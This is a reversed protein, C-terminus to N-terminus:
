ATALAGAVRDLDAPTCDLHPSLRLLPARLEGPARWPLSATTLVQHEELLRARVAAVDQGPTPRLATVAGRHRRGVIQWAGTTALAERTTRGLADLAGAVAEPGTEVLRRVAHALGVRGAVHAEDSDLLRAPPLDPSSKAPRLVDLRAAYPAAVAVFGVGRPGRLWKRGTGYVADAGPPEHVQGLAQAADVWLPVEHRRCVAAAQAVPQVLGRHAAVQVLHVLAPRERALFRDLADLDLVGDADVPLHVPDLGRRGLLELNPGWESPAVAVTGGTLPWTALLAGLAGSASEVLAVDDAALGVLSALDARLRDIVPLAREEAVYGGIEAELRVHEAVVTQTAADQRGCAATDLHLV